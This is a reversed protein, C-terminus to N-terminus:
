ADSRRRTIYQTVAALAGIVVLLIIAAASSQGVNNGITGVNYMRTMWVDTSGAPGGGTLVYVETFVRLARIAALTLVIAFSARLSPIVIYRLRQWRNAGDLASAEYMEREISTLGAIFIVMNYPAGSWIGIFIITWIATGPSNLFELPPIGVFGLLSNVFGLESPYLLSRWAEAVVAVAAVVPLFVTTRVFWLSRAQGELLLALGLGVVVGGLTQFFAIQVTHLAALQFKEDTLVETYNELGIFENGLFPQVKQFSYIFSNFLPIFKFLLALVIAPLAFAWAISGLKLRMVLQGKRAVGLSRRSIAREALSTM